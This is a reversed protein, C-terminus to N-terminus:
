DIFQADTTFELTLNNLDLNDFSSFRGTTGEPIPTNPDAIKTFTFRGAQANPAIAVALGCTLVCSGSLYFATLCGNKQM